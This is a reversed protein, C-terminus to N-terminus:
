DALLFMYMMLVIKYSADDLAAKIADIMEDRSLREDAM